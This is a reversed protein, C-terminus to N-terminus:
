EIPNIALVSEFDKKSLGSVNTNKIKSLVWYEFDFRLIPSLEYRDKKYERIRERLKLFDKNLVDESKVKKLSKIFNIILGEVKYLRKRKNLYNLTNQTLYDITFDKNLEYQILLNLLRIASNLDNRIKFSVDNIIANTFHLAKKFDGNFFYLKALSFYSEYLFSKEIQGKFKQFDKKNEDIFDLCKKFAIENLFMELRINFSYFFLRAGTKPSNPIGYKNKASELTSLVELANGKQENQIYAKVLSALSFIYGITSYEILYPNEQYHNTLKKTYVLMNNKDNMLYYYSILLSIKHMKARSSLLLHDNYIEQITIFKKIQKIESESRITGMKVGVDYCEMTIGHVKNFNEIIKILRESDDITKVAMPYQLQKSMLETNIENVILEHSFLEHEKTIKKAKKVLKLAQNYLGKHYLVEIQHLLSLVRSKANLDSHYANLSKLILRYLYNKEQSLNKVFNCKLLAKENYKNQKEIANFLHIYDNSEGIVHKLSNIKFYRKESMTMSKVLDFLLLSSM